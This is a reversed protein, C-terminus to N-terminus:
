GGPPKGHGEDIREYIEILLWGARMWNVEVQQYEISFKSFDDPLLGAEILPDILGLCTFREPNKPTRDHYFVIRVHYPPPVQGQTEPKVVRAM